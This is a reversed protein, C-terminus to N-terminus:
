EFKQTDITVEGVYLIGLHLFNLNSVTFCTPGLKKFSPVQTELKINYILINLTLM